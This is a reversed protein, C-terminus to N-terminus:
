TGAPQENRSDSRTRVLAREVPHGVLTRDVNKGCGTSMVFIASRTPTLGSAALRAVHKREQILQGLSEELEVNFREDDCEAAFDVFACTRADGEFRIARAAKM